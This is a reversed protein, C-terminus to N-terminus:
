SSPSRAREDAKEAAALAEDWSAFAALEVILGDEFRAVHAASQSVEVGSEAGIGHFRIESVVRDGRECIRVVEAELTEWPETSLRLLAEIEEHGEYVPKIGPFVGSSRYVAAPDFFRPILDFRRDVLAAYADKLRDVEDGM